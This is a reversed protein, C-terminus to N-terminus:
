RLKPRGVEQRELEDTLDIILKFLNEYGYLPLKDPTDYINHAGASNGKTLFFIAPVGKQHFPWHDSNASGNRQEVEKMYHKEENIKQIISAELPRQPGNFLIVGDQGTGVMDLNIALKIKNLPFLPNNTYYTSGMLGREEGSFLMFVMSYYPKDGGAFHRAMDLVMATGSGNDSAGPFYNGEGFSGCMDYHATIVIYKDTQGPIYGIVNQTPYKDYYKNRIEIEISEIKDPLAKRNLQIHPVALPERGVRGIPTKAYVEILGSIGMKGNISLSKVFSYLEPNNLGTSDIIVVTNKGANELSSLLGAPNKMLPADILLPKFTGSLASSSPNMMYDDGFKLERGNIKVSVEELSNVNFSYHQFYDKGFPSLGIDTFQDALYDAALKDGRNYYARGFFGPSCLRDLQKRVYIIDQANSPIITLILLVSIVTLRLNLKNM